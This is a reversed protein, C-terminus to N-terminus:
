MYLLSILLDDDSFLIKVNNKRLLYQFLHMNVSMPNIEVKLVDESILNRVQNIIAENLKEEFVFKIQSNTYFVFIKQHKRDDISEQIFSLLHFIIQAVFDELENINEDFIVEFKHFIKKWDHKIRTMDLKYERNAMCYSYRAINICDVIKSACDDIMKWDNQSEHTPTSACLMMSNVPNIIDHCFMNIANQFIKVIYDDSDSTIGM